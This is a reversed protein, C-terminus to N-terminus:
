DSRISGGGEHGFKWLFQNIIDLSPDKSKTLFVWMFRSAKDVVLLYSSYGDWSQVVRDTKPNPKRYDSCSARMFGFDMYYRKGAESTRVAM